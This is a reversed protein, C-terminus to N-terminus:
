GRKRLLMMLGVVIVVAIIIGTWFGAKFIGAAVACGSMLVVLAVFLLLQFLAM